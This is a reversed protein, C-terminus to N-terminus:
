LEVDKSDGSVGNIHQLKAIDSLPLYSTAICGRSKGAHSMRDGGYEDEFQPNMLLM